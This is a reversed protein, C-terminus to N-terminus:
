QLFDSNPGRYEAIQDNIILQQANWTGSYHLGLVELELQEGDLEYRSPAGNPMSEQIQGGRVLVNGGKQFIFLHEGSQWAHGVLESPPDLKPPDPIVPAIEVPDVAVPVQQKDSCGLCVLVIFIGVLGKKM